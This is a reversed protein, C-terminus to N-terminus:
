LYKEAIKVIEKPIFDSKTLYSIAGLKKCEDELGKKNYNSLILIKTEETDKNNKITKLVELGNIDGLLLDLLILDPKEKLAIKIGDKGNQAILLEYGYIKFEIEYLMVQTSDDEILLIKKNQKSM